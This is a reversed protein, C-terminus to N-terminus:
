KKDDGGKERELQEKRAKVFAMLSAMFAPIGRIYPIPSLGQPPRKGLGRLERRRQMNEERQEQWTSSHKLTWRSGRVKIQEHHKSCMVYNRDTHKELNVPFRCGRSCEVMIKNKQSMEGSGLGVNVTVALGCNFGM